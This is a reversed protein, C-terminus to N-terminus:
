YDFSVFNIKDFAQYVKDWTEAAYLTTVAM